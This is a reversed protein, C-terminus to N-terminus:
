AIRGSVKHLERATRTEGGRRLRNNKSTRRTGLTDDGCWLCTRRAMGNEALSWGALFGSTAARFRFHTEEETTYFPRTMVGDTGSARLARLRPLLRCNGFTESRSATGTASSGLRTQRHITQESESRNAENWWRECKRRTTSPEPVPVDGLQHLATPEAYLWEPGTGACLNGHGERQRQNARASGLVWQMEAMLEKAEKVSALFIGEKARHFGALTHEVRVVGDTKNSLTELLLSILMPVNPIDFVNGVRRRVRM